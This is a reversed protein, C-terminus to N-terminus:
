SRCAALLRASHNARQISSMTAELIALLTRYMSYHLLECRPLDSKFLQKGHNERKLSASLSDRGRVTISLASHFTAREDNRWIDDRQMMIPKIIPSLSYSQSKFDCNIWIEWGEFTFKACLKDSERTNLSIYLTTCLSCCLLICLSLAYHFHYIHITSM